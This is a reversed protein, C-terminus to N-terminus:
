RGMFILISDFCRLSPTTTKCGELDNEHLDFIDKEIVKVEEPLHNGFWLLDVVDVEYGRDLVKPM